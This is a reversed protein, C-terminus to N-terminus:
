TDFAAGLDAMGKIEVPNGSPDAFFMTAQEGPEGEFRIQPALVFDVGAATLREALARWDTMPLVAGFHPMPVDHDGVKGTAAVAFPAGLHCSIQHGFFNFDVWTDTSRGEACGLLDSYFARTADLDTVNFALHFLTM